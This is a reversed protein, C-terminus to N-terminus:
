SVEKHRIGAVKCKCMYKLAYAIIHKSWTKEVISYEMEQM